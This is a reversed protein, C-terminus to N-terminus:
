FGVLQPEVELNIGFKEKVKNQIEVALSLIEGASAGGCNILALSHLPSVGVNGTRFGKDFGACEILCAASIKIRLDKRQWFWPDTCCNKATKCQAVKLKLDELAAEQIAPNTFFSGASSHLEEGITAMGKKSRIKLVAERVEPLSPAAAAGSFYNKLEHYKLTPAGGQKLLFSVSNIAYRGPNKKFRSTRYGFECDANKGGSASGGKASFTTEEGIKLDIACVEDITEAASQGYAGINQVPVAGVTGPIGSLCEVGAANNRVTFEVFSDWSEGAGAEVHLLGGDARASLGLIRNRLILGRFGSDSVLINSGEGLVFVPLSKEAAWAAAEKLEAKNAVECFFRAPGGIKFATYPALPINELFKM